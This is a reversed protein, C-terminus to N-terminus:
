KYCTDGVYANAFIPDNALNGSRVLSMFGVVVEEKNNFYKGAVLSHLKDVVDKVIPTRMDEESLKLTLEQM